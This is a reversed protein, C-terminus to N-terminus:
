PTVTAIKLAKEFVVNGADPTDWSSTGVQVWLDGFRADMEWRAWEADGGAPMYVYYAADEDLGPIDIANAGGEQWIKRADNWMTGSLPVWYVVVGVDTGPPGWACARGGNDLAIKLDTHDAPEWPPTVDVAGTFGLGRITRIMAPLACSDPIVYTTPPTTPTVTPTSTPTPSASTETPSVTPTPSPTSCGALVCVAVLALVGRVKM